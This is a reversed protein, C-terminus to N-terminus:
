GRNFLLKLDSQTVDPALACRAIALKIGHLRPSHNFWDTTSRDRPKMQINAWCTDSCAHLRDLVVYLIFCWVTETNQNFFGTSSLQLHSTKFCFLRWQKWTTVSRSLKSFILLLNKQLVGDMAKYALQSATYDWLLLLTWTARM